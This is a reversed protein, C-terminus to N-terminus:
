KKSEESILKELRRSLKKRNAEYKDKTWGLSKWAEDGRMGLGWATVLDLLDANDAVLHNIAELETRAAVQREPTIDTRSLVTAGSASPQENGVEIPDVEFGFEIPGDKIRKNANSAISRMVNEIVVVTAVGKPWVRVGELLKTFAEQMLDDSDLGIGSYSLSQALFELRRWNGNSMGTLEAEIEGRDLGLKNIPTESM